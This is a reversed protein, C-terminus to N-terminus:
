PQSRRIIEADISDEYAHGTAALQDLIPNVSAMIRKREALELDSRRSLDSQLEVQLVSAGLGVYLPLSEITSSGCGALLLAALIAYTRLLYRRTRM